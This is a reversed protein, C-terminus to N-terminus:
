GTLAAKPADKGAPIGESCFAFSKSLTVIMEAGRRVMNGMFICKHTVDTM